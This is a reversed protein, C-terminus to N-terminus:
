PPFFLVICVPQCAFIFTATSIWLGLCWLHVRFKLHVEFILAERQLMLKAECMGELEQRAKELQEHGIKDDKRPSAGLGRSAAIQSTFHATELLSEAYWIQLAIHAIELVSEAYNRLRRPLTLGKWLLNRLFIWACASEQQRTHHRGHTAM